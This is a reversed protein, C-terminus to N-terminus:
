FCVECKYRLKGDQKWWAGGCSGGTCMYCSGVLEIYEDCFLGGCLGLGYLQSALDAEAEACSEGMGTKVVSAAYTANPFCRCANYTPAPATWAPAETSQLATSSAAADAMAPAAALLGLLLLSALGLVGLTRRM